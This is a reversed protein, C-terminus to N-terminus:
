QMSSVAALGERVYDDQGTSLGFLVTNFPMVGRYFRMRARFGAGVQGPYCALVREVFEEGYADLLGTFDIAPDGIALDGWDIIGSITGRQPDYLIHEGALDHHILASRWATRDNLFAQWEAAVRAHIAPALLPLVQRQIQAYLDEYRRRWSARDGTPLGLQAAQEIPFQHLAALFQGLQRAIDDVRETTLHEGALPLGAILRHGILPHPYAPGGPWFYAIDPIPLPLAGALAPLLRRELLYQPEVDPRKPFRFILRQGVEVAVSDWGEGLLRCQEISLDPFCAAIIQRYSEASM